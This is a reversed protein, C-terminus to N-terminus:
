DEIFSRSVAATLPKLLYQLLTRAGSNILVDAPMGPVLPTSSLQDLDDPNVRVRARYYTSGSQQDQFTDASLAIVTGTLRPTTQASLAPFRVSAEQNVAVRDIDTPSVRAEIILEDGFPVIEGIPDGPAIVAGITHIDMGNVIGADPALVDKRDVVDRLAVRRERLDELQSRTEGLQTVVESLFERQVQEIEERTESIRIETSTINSDLEAVEGLLSNYEREVSRLRNTDSFGDALLGRVEDLEQRYSEVLIQRSEQMNIMGELQSELQNVRQQLVEIRGQRAERRAEFVERQSLMEALQTQSAEEIGTDFKIQDLGDREALLRAEMAELAAIQVNVMGLQARSQTADLRLLVDGAEVRDGNEVLIERIIGGELHQVIKNNSRATVTGPAYSAGDIPATAAWIGFVGFVLFAAILGTRRASEFGSTLTDELENTDAQQRETM